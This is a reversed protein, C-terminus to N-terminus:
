FIRIIYAVVYYPPRNEVPLHNPIIKLDTGGWSATKGAFDGSEHIHTSSSVTALDSDDSQVTAKKGDNVEEDRTQRAEVTHTHPGSATINLTGPGHCHSPINTSDLLVEKEGNSGVGTSNYDVDSYAPPSTREDYGVVFRGRLDPIDVEDGNPLNYTGDGNCLHWGNLGYTTLGNGNANFATAPGAWMMICGIPVSGRGRYSYAYLDGSIRSPQGHCSIYSPDNSPTDEDKGIMIGDYIHAGGEVLINKNAFMTDADNLNDWSNLRRWGQDVSDWYYFNKEFVVLLNDRLGPKILANLDNTKVEEILVGKTGGNIHLIACSDPNDMNIGVQGFAFVSLTLAIISTIAKQKMKQITKNNFQKTTIQSKPSVRHIADTRDSKLDIYNSFDNSPVNCHLTRVLRNKIHENKIQM